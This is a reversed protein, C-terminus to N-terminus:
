SLRRIKKLQDILGYEQGLLDTLGRIESESLNSVHQSERVRNKPLSGIRPLAESIEKYGTDSLEEAFCYYNISQISDFAEQISFEESYHFLQSMLHEKPMNRAFELLSPKEGLWKAESKMCPHNFGQDVYFRIMKYHSVVREVPDRFTTIVFTREKLQLRHYPIHSWGYFYRGSNLRHLNWGTFVYGNLVTTGGNRSAHHYAQRIDVEEQGCVSGLFKYNLSTGGCKRIHSNYIRCYQKGDLHSDICYDLVQLRERNKLYFIPDKLVSLKSRLSSTLRCRRLNINGVNELRMNTM